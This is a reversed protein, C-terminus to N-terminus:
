GPMCWGERNSRQEWQRALATLDGREAWATLGSVARHHRPDDSLPVATSRPATDATPDDPTDSPPAPHM